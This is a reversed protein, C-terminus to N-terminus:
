NSKSTLYAYSSVRSSIRQKFRNYLISIIYFLHFPITCPNSNISYFSITKTCYYIPQCLQLRALFLKVRHDDFLRSVAIRPTVPLSFCFFCCFGRVRLSNGGRTERDTHFDSLFNTDVIVARFTTCNIAPM